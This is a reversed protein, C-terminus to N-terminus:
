RAEVLGTREMAHITGGATHSAVRQRETDFDRRKQPESQRQQDRHGFSRLDALSVAALQGKVFATLDRVELEL